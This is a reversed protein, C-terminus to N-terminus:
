CVSSPLRFVSSRYKDMVAVAGTSEGSVRQWYDTEQPHRGVIAVVVAVAAVITVAAAPRCPTWGCGAPSLLSMIEYGNLKSAM